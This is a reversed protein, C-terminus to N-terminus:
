KNRRLRLVVLLLALSLAIIMAAAVILTGSQDPTSSPPPEEIPLAFFSSASNRVGGQDWQLVAFVVYKSGPFATLNRAAVPLRAVSDPKVELVQPKFQVHIEHASYYSVALRLPESSSNRVSLRGKFKQGNGKFVLKTQFSPIRTKILDDESLDGVTVNSIAASSLQYGNQDKYYKRSVVPFVGKTALSLGACQDKVKCSLQDGTLQGKVEWVSQAGPELRRPEGAWQWSGLELTPYVDFGVEDGKNTLTYAGDISWDVGSARVTIQPDGEITLVSASATSIGFGSLGALLLLFVFVRRLARM